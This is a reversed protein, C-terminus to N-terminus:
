HRLQRSLPSAGVARAPRAPMRCPDPCQQVVGGAGPTIGWRHKRPGHRRGNWRVAPGPVSAGSPDVVVGALREEVYTRLARDLALQAQKPSAVHKEPPSCIARCAM